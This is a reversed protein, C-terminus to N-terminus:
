YIRWYLLKWKKPDAEKVDLVAKIRITTDAVTGTLILSFFRPEAAILSAFGGTAPQTGGGTGGGPSPAQAGGSAAGIATNLSTAIQQKLANGVGGMACGERVATVLSVMTEPEDLRIPPLAPNGEVYRRIVSQIVADDANCVNVTGDGYVTFYKELPVFWDDAVGDILFAEELTTLKGNKVPYGVALRDYLVMEPGAEVGQLENIQENSDVWDGINRVVDAVKVNVKEFADKYDENGLFKMLFLKYQDYANYGEEVRQLPNLDAFSNLNIKTSEDICEADFDGEFKLFEAAESQQNISVMKKFEPPLDAAGEGSLFVARILSTTMPFQQCLPLNASGGLFQGLNQSQVVQRFLRDFKLEIQMFRYASKALYEAKLRDLENRALHYNINTNYAFEVAMATMVTIAGLVLILAMGKQSTTRPVHSTPRLNIFRFGLINRVKSLMNINLLENHYRRPVM